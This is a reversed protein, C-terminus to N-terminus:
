EEPNAPYEDAISKIPQSSLPKSSSKETEKTEIFDEELLFKGSDPDMVFVDGENYAKAYKIYYALEASRSALEPSLGRRLSYVFDRATIPDGNSFRGSHRLHFVFESSDKNEEWREALAPIPVTTKPDYEALGEFLAMYIRAEPQGTSIQPDLSEPESGSVYHLVNERPPDTKGFFVQNKASVACGATAIAIAFIGAVVILRSSFQTRAQKIMLIHEHERSVGPHM